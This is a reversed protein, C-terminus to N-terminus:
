YRDRGLLEEAGMEDRELDGLTTASCSDIQVDEANRLRDIVGESPRPVHKALTKVHGPAQVQCRGLSTVQLHDEKNSDLLPFSDPLDDPTQYHDLM